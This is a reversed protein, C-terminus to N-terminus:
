MFSYTILNSVSTNWKYGSLLADINQDADTIDTDPYFRTYSREGAM